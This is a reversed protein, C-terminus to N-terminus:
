KKIKIKTRKQRSLVLFLNIRDLSLDKSLMFFGLCKIVIYGTNLKILTPFQTGMLLPLVTCNPSFVMIITQVTCYNSLRLLVLTIQTHIRAHWFFLFLFLFNRRVQFSLSCFIWTKHDNEHASELAPFTSLIPVFFLVPYQVSIYRCVRGSVRSSQVLSSSCSALGSFSKSRLRMAEPSPWLNTAHACAKASM